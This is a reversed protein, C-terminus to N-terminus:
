ARGGQLRQWVLGALAVDELGVGVSKYLTIERPDQRGPQLGAVLEGLEVLREETVLGPAALVLDGAEKLTQPKWEVAIRSARRLATDDLERTHPLSSGIAAVFSGEALQEGRFLPTTSRSATVVIDAGEVAAEPSVLRVPVGCAAQLEDALTAPAYPDSVRIERLPFAAAMQQAHMRGQVGAGCMAMVQADPRALRRAAIVSCAATRLRTIAGADFSALARGDDAAFLLIVFTFQGQLTTYVKAGVVGQGPVVAGLTSLKIGGAETRVRTQMAAEGRGFRAFADELVAQAQEPSITADVMADTIHQM